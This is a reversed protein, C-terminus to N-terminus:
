RRTRRCVTAQIAKELSQRLRGYSSSECDRVANLDSTHISVHRGRVQARADNRSTTQADRRHWWIEQINYCTTSCIPMQVRWVSVLFTKAGVALPQCSFTMTWVPHVSQRSSPFQSHRQSQTVALTNSARLWDVGNAQNRHTNRHPM